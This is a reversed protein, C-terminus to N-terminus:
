MEVCSIDPNLDHFNTRCVDLLQQDFGWLFVPKMGLKHAAWVKGGIGCCLSDLDLCKADYNEQKVYASYTLIDKAVQEVRGTYTGSASGQQQQQKCNM